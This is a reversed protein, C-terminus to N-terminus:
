EFWRICKPQKSTAFFQKAAEIAVPWSVISDNRVELDDAPSRSISFMTTGGQDIDELNGISKFGPEDDSLLYDLSAINDKVAISLMPYASEAFSLWFANDGNKTRRQLSSELEEVCKVEIQGLIDAVNM